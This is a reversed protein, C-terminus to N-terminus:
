RDRKGAPTYSLRIIYQVYQVSYLIRNMARMYWVMNIMHLLNILVPIFSKSKIQILLTIFSHPISNIFSHTISHIFSYHFSHILLPFFSHIFSHIFSHTFSHIPLPIFSHQATSCPGLGHAPAPARPWGWGWPRCGPGPSSCWGPVGGGRVEGMAWCPVYTKNIFRECKWWMKTLQLRANSVSASHCNVIVTHPPPPPATGTATPPPHWRCGARRGGAGSMRWQWPM